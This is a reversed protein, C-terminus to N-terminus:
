DIEIQEPPVQVVQGNRSIVISRGARKHAKLAERVGRNLAAEVAAQDEFGESSGRKSGKVPRRKTKPTRKSSPAGPKM